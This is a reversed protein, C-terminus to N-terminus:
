KDPLNRWKTDKRNGHLCIAFAWEEQSGSVPHRWSRASYCVLAGLLACALRISACVM